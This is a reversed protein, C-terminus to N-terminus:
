YSCAVRCSFVYISTYQTVFQFIKDFTTQDNITGLVCAANAVQIALSINQKHFSGARPEKTCTCLSKCLKKLFTETSPGAAGQVEFHIPLFVSGNIILYRYKDSKQDEEEGSATVPNCVSGGSIRSSALSDLELIDWLLQRGM